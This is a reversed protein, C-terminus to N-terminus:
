QAPVTLNASVLSADSFIAEDLFANELLASDLDGESLDASSLNVGRLDSNQLSIQELRADILSAGSLKIDPFYGYRLDINDLNAETMDIISIPNDILHSEYLFNIVIAKRKRDLRLLDNLRRLVILTRIRAIYRIESSEKSKMLGKELMLESMRDLYAELLTEQTRDHLILEEFNKDREAMERDLKAQRREQQRERERNISM